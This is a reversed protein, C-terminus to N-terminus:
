PEILVARAPRHAAPTSDETHIPDVLDQPVQALLTAIRSGPGPRRPRRPAPRAGLLHSPRPRTLAATPRAFLALAPCRGATPLGVAFDTPRRPPRQRGSRCSPPSGPTPRTVLLAGSPSPRTHFGPPLPRHPRGPPLPRHPRGPPRRDRPVPASLAQHPTGPPHITPLTPNFYRDGAPETRSRNRSPGMTPARTAMVGWGHHGQGVAMVSAPPPM